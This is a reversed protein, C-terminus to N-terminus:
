SWSMRNPVAAPFPSIAFNEHSVKNDRKQTQSQYVQENRDAVNFSYHYKAKIESSDDDDVFSSPPDVVIENLNSAESELVDFNEFVQGTAAAGAVLVVFIVAIM